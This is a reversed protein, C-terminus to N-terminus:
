YNVCCLHLKADFLTQKHYDCSHLLTTKVGYLYETIITVHADPQLVDFLENLHIKADQLCQYM